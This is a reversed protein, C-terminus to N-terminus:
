HEASARTGPQLIRSNASRAAVRYRFCYSDHCMHSGGRIVRNAGSPLDMSLAPSNEGHQVTWADACWEWVNGCSNYLGFGNPAFANVPAIGKCGDAATHKAPFSGRWINCRYECGPDLEDGWPYRAQARRWPRRVGM